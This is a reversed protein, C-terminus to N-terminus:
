NGGLISRLEDARDQSEDDYRQPAPREYSLTQINSPEREAYEVVEPIHRTSSLPRFQAQPALQQANSPPEFRRPPALQPETAQPNFSRQPVNLNQQTSQNQKAQLEILKQELARIQEQQNQNLSPNGNSAPQRTPLQGQRAERPNQRGNQIRSQQFYTAAAAQESDSVRELRGDKKVGITTAQVQWDRQSPANLDYEPTSRLRKAVSDERAVGKLHVTNMESFLKSGDPRTLRLRISCDAEFQGPRTYPVYVNYCPGLASTTEYGQWAGENFDFQHIPKKREEPTGSDDFVFVRVDGDVAIPSPNNANFFYVQGVFGRGTSGDIGDGEGPQWLGMVRVAPSNPTAREVPKKNGPRLSSCGTVAFSFLLLGSIASLSMLKTM